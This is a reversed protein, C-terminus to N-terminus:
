PSGLERAVRICADTATKSLMFLASARYSGESAHGDRRVLVDEYGDGDFDARAYLVVDATWIDGRVAFGETNRKVLEVTPDFQKWSQCRQGAQQALARVGSFDSLGLAPPLLLTPDAASLLPELLSTRAPKASVTMSLAACEVATSWFAARDVETDPVLAIEELNLQLLARCSAVPQVPAGDRPRVDFTGDEGFSRDLDRETRWPLAPYIHIPSAYAPAAQTPLEPSPTHQTSASAPAGQPAPAATRARPASCGATEVLALALCVQAAGRLACRRHRQSLRKGCCTKVCFRQKDPATPRTNRPEPGVGLGAAGANADQGNM